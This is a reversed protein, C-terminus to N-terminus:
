IAPQRPNGGKHAYSDNTHFSVGNNLGDQGSGSDQRWRMTKKDWVINARHVAAQQNYMTDLVSSEQEAADSDGSAALSSDENGLYVFAVRKIVYQLQAVCGGGQSYKSLVIAFLALGRFFFGIFVLILGAVVADGNLNAKEDETTPVYMLRDELQRSLSPRAVMVTINHAQIPLQQMESAFLMQLYWRNCALFSFPAEAVTSNILESGEWVPEFLPWFILILTGSLESAVVISVLIAAGSWYWASLLAVTFYSTYYQLPTAFIYLAISFSAALFPLMSLNYLNRAFFYGISSIGSKFERASNLREQTFLPRTFSAVFVYYLPTASSYGTLYKAMWAYDYGEEASLFAFVAGAVWLLGATSTLTGMDHQRFSRGCMYYMQKTRGLTDRPALPKVQAGRLAEPAEFGSQYYFDDDFVKARFQEAWMSFLDAPAKFNEDVSGDDNYRPSLGCVVDILWDAPNERDPLRFGLSTFYEEILEGRGCYVQQGGKGLLLLHTFEEYVALRPQHIVCIITLGSLRLQGLCRALEITAAGDLGSTPEDMFVIAPMAVLEVGINVRKKQGGSIGRRTADGVLNNRIHEIGLVRMVHIVHEIKKPKAVSRPLRLMANYFLNEYVSLNAHVVDDQPVFGTQSPVREFGGNVGNISITGSVNGYPARDLLANMFTTKGGGSPGMLAVLSGAPFSGNIDKLVHAKSAKLEMSLDRFEVQVPATAVLGGGLKRGQEVFAGRMVESQHLLRRKRLWLRFALMNMTIIIGAAALWHLPLMVVQEGNCGKAAGCQHPEDFAVLCITGSSCNGELITGTEHDARCWTGRPQEM